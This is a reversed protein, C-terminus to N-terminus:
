RASGWSRGRTRAELGAEHQLAEVAAWLQQCAERETAPLPALAAARLGALDPDQQWQHLVEGVQARVEPTNKDLQKGLYTLEARLWELAQGRWRARESAELGCADDGHGSAALAAACAANYRQNPRRQEALEPQAAFAERYSVPRPRLQAQKFKLCLRALEIWDGAAPKIEGRLVAPRQRDLDLLRRCRAVLKGSPYNWGSRKSGLADGREFAALAEAFQGKEELAMGLGIHAEPFDERFRIAERFAPIAQDLEGRDLFANGLNGHAAALGPNIRLAQRFCDIAGASDKKGDLLLSGLNCYAAAYGSKCRIAERYAAVAQDLLGEDRLANALNYHAEAFDKQLRIAERYAAIAKQRQGKRSLVIGLNLHGNPFDKQLAIAARIAVLAQDFEGKDALANGLNCRANAYNPEIRLAEQFSALAQDALGKQLLATGLNNHVTASRSRLALAATYFRISEDVRPPEMKGYYVGLNHNIWFDDPHQQHGKLLVLVASSLEGELRLTTGLLYLTYTPLTADNVESALAKLARADRGAM